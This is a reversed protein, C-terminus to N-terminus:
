QNITKNEELREKKAAMYKTFVTVQIVTENKFHIEKRGLFVFNVLKM